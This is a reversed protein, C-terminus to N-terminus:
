TFNSSVGAGGIGLQSMTEKRVSRISESRKKYEYFEAEKQQRVPEYSAFVEM